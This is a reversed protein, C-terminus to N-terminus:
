QEFLPMLEPPADYNGITNEAHIAVKGGQGTQNLKGSVM